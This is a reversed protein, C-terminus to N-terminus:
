EDNIRLKKCYEIAKKYKGSCTNIDEMLDEYAYVNLNWMLNIQFSPNMKSFADICYDVYKPKEGFWIFHLIKPIM